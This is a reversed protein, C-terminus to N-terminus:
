EKTTAAQLGLTCTTLCNPLPLPRRCKGRHERDTSTLMEVDPHHLTDWLHRICVQGRWVPGEGGPLGSRSTDMNSGKRKRTSGAKMSGVQIRDRLSLETDDGGPLRRQSGEGDAPRRPVQNSPLMLPRKHPPVRGLGSQFSRAPLSTAKYLNAKELTSPRIYM